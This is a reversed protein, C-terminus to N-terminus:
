CRPKVSNIIETDPNSSTEDPMFFAIEDVISGALDCWSPAPLERARVEIFVNGKLEITDVTRRVISQSLIPSEELAGLAYGLIGAAQRMTLPLSWVVGREGSALM